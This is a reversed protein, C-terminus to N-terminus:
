FYRRRRTTPKSSLRPGRPGAPLHRAPPLGESGPASRRPGSRRQPEPLGRSPARQRESRTPRRAGRTRPQSRAVPTGEPEPLHRSPTPLESGSGSEAPSKQSRPQSAETDPSHTLVTLRLRFKRLSRGHPRPDSPGRHPPRQVEERAAARGCPLLGNTSKGGAGSVRESGVANRSSFMLGVSLFVFWGAASIPAQASRTCNIEYSGSEELFHATRLIQPAM